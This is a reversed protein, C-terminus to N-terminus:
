TPSILEGDFYIGRWVNNYAYMQWAGVTRNGNVVNNFARHDSGGLIGPPVNNGTPYNIENNSIEIGSSSNGEVMMPSSSWEDITIDLHNRRVTLNQSEFMSIADSKYLGTVKNNEINGGSVHDFEVATTDYHESWRFDHLWNDKVTVNSSRDALIGREGGTVECGEVVVNNAGYIGVTPGDLGKIRANRIVVNDRTISLPPIEDGRADIVLMGNEYSAYRQLVEPISGDGLEVRAGGELASGEHWEQPADVIPQYEPAPEPLPAPADDAIEPIDVPVDIPSEPTVSEPCDGSGAATEPCPPPSPQECDQECTPTPVPECDDGRGEERGDGLGEFCQDLELTPLVGSNVMGNVCTRLQTALRSTLAQIDEFSISASCYSDTNAFSTDCSDTQEMRCNSTM